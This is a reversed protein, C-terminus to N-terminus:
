QRAPSWPSPRCRHVVAKYNSPSELVAGRSVGVRVARGRMAPPPMASGVAVSFYEGGGVPIFGPKGFNASGPRALRLVEKPPKSAPQNDNSFGVVKGFRAERVELTLDSARRAVPAYEDDWAVFVQNDPLRRPWFFRIQTQRQPGLLLRRGDFRGGDPLYALSRNYNGAAVVLSTGRNALKRGLAQALPGDGRLFSEEPIAKGLSVIIANVVERMDVSRTRDGPKAKPLLPELIAWQEDTLDTKYPKRSISL